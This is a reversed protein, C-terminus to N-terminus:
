KGFHQDFYMQATRFITNDSYLGRPPEIRYWEITFTVLKSSSRKPRYKFIMNSYVSGPSPNFLYVLDTKFEPVM